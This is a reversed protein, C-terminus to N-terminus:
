GGKVTVNSVTFITEDLTNFTSLTSNPALSLHDFWVDFVIASGYLEGHLQAVSFIEIIFLV